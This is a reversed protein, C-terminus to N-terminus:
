DDIDSELIRVWQDVMTLIEDETHNVDKNDEFRMKFGKPYTMTCPIGLAKAAVGGALDVGSQGGSVIGRLPWHQNVLNLVDYVYHNLSDQTWGKKYMTYIGNGAINLVKVDLKRCAKYLGRAAQIYDDSLQGIDIAVYKGNAAKKTLKEGATNFDVAFAVTLDGTTANHYTRPAYSESKHEKVSFTTM